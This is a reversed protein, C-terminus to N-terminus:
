CSATKLVEAELQFDYSEALVDPLCVADVDGVRLEVVPIDALMDEWRGSGAKGCSLLLEPARRLCDAVSPPGAAATAPPGATTSLPAAHGAAAYPLAAAAPSGKTLSLALSRAPLASQKEKLLTDARQLLLATRLPPRCAESVPPTVTSRSVDPPREAETGEEQWDAPM